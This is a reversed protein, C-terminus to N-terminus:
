FRIVLLDLPRLRQANGGSIIINEGRKARLSHPASRHAGPEGREAAPSGPVRVSTRRAGSLVANYRKFLIFM